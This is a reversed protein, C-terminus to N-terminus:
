RREAGGQVIRLVRVEPAMAALEKMQELEDAPAVIVCGALGQWRGFARLAHVVLPLGGLQLFQKSVPGGMRRGMGAAVVVAWAKLGQTEM